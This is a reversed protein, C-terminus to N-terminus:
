FPGKFWDGPVDHLISNSLTRDISVKKNVIKLISKIIQIQGPYFDKTLGFSTPTPADPLAIRIPPCKLFKFFNMSIRAIIEGAISGNANSTDLVVVRGTKKISKYITAYDIFNM